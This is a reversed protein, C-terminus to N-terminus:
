AATDAPVKEAPTHAERRMDARERLNADALQLLREPEDDPVLFVKGVRVGRIEGREIGRRVSAASL